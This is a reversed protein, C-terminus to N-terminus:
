IRENETYKDQRSYYVIISTMVATSEEQSHASTFDTFAQIKSVVICPSYDSHTRLDLTYM